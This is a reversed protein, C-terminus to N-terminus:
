ADEEESRIKWCSRCVPATTAWTSTPSLGFWTRSSGAVSAAVGSPFITAATSKTLLLMSSRVSANASSAARNMLEALSNVPSVKILRESLVAFKVIM